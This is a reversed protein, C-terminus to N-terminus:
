SFISEKVSFTSSRSPSTRLLTIGLTGGCSSFSNLSGPRSSKCGTFAKASHVAAFVGRMMAARAM